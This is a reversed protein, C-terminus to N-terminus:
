QKVTNINSSSLVQVYYTSKASGAYSNIVKPSELLGKCGLDAGQAVIDLWSYGRSGWLVLDFFTYSGPCNGGAM